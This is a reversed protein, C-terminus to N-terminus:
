IRVNQLDFQLFTIVCMSFFDSTQEFGLYQIVNPHDLLKRIESELRISALANAVLKGRQCSEAKPIEIQKVAIMDTTTTLALYVHGCTGKGIIKGRIWECSSTMIEGHLIAGVHCTAQRGCYLDTESQENQDVVSM